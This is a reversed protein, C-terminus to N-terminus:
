ERRSDAVPRFADYVVKALPRMASEDLESALAYGRPGDLWYLVNVGEEHAFQFEIEGRNRLDARIYLTFRRGEASEYMLQAAPTGGPGPLLRGGILYYGFADLRPAAIPMDLRRSLWAFLEQRAALEVPRDRESAYVRHAAAAQRTFDRWQPEIVASRWLWGAVGGVIVATSALVMTRLAERRPRIREGAGAAAHWLAPPIPEERVRRQCERLLANLRKQAELEEAIEPHEHLYAAVQSRRQPPLRDDVYRILDEKTVSPPRVMM